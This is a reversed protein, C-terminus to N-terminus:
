QCLKSSTIQYVTLEKKVTDYVEGQRSLLSVEDGFHSKILVGGVALRVSLAFDHEARSVDQVNAYKHLPCICPLEDEDHVHAPGSRGAVTSVSQAVDDYFSPLM